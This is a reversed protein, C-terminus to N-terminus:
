VDTAPRLIEEQPHNRPKGNQPVLLSIDAPSHHASRRTRKLIIAQAAQDLHDLSAAFTPDEHPRKGDLKAAMAM